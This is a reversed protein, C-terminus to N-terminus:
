PDFRNSTRRNARRVPNLIVRHSPGGASKRTRERVGPCARACQFLLVPLTSVGTGWRRTRLGGRLRESRRRSGPRNPCHSRDRSCMTGTRRLQRSGWSRHKDSHPPHAVGSDRLERDYGRCPPFNRWDVFAVLRWVGPPFLDDIPLGHLPQGGRLVRDDSQRVVPDSPAGM